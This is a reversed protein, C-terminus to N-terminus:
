LLLIAESGYRELDEAIWNEGPRLQHFRVTCEAEAISIIEQFSRGEKNALSHRLAFAYNLCSILSERTGTFPFHIHNVFCEFGTRDPFDTVKIHRSREYEHKLLVSRDVDVLIPPDVNKPPVDETSPLQVNMQQLLASMQKNM